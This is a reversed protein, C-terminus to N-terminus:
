KLRRLAEDKPIIKYNQKEFLEQFYSGQKMDKLNIVALDGKCYKSKWSYSKDVILCLCHEIEVFDGAKAKRQKLKFYLSEGECLIILEGDGNLRNFENHFIEEFGKEKMLKRAEDKKM